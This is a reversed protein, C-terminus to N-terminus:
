SDGSTSVIGSIIRDNRAMVTPQSFMGHAEDRVLLEELPHLRLIAKGGTSWAGNLVDQRDDGDAEHHM